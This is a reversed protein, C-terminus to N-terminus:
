HVGRRRSLLVLMAWSALDIEDFCKVWDVGISVLDVEKLLLM